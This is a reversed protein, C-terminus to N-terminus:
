RARGKARSLRPKSNPLPQAKTKENRTLHSQVTRMIAGIRKDQPSLLLAVKAANLAEKAMGMVLLAEAKFRFGNSNTPEIRIMEDAVQLVDDPKRLAALVTCYIGMVRPNPPKERLYVPEIYNKAEQYNQERLAIVSLLTPAVNNGPSFSCVRGLLTKANQIALPAFNPDIRSKELYAKALATLIFENEPYHRQYQEGMECARDLAGERVLSAIAQVAAKPALTSPTNM